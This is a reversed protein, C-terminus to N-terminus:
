IQDDIGYLRALSVLSQPVHRFEIRDPAARRRLSLLLSLASSDLHGVGALDFIRAGDGLVQEGEALLRTANDLVLDGELMAVGAEVRM